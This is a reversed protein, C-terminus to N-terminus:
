EGGHRYCLTGDDCENCKLEDAEFGLEDAEYVNTVEAWHGSESHMREREDRNAEYYKVLAETETAAEVSFAKTYEVIYTKM